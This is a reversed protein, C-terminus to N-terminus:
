CALAEIWLTSLCLFLSACVVCVCLVRDYSPRIYTLCKSTFPRTLGGGGEDKGTENRLGEGYFRALQGGSSYEHARERAACVGGHRLTWWSRCTLTKRMTCAPHAKVKRGM